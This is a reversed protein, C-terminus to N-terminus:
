AAGDEARAIRAADDKIEYARVPWGDAYHEPLAEIAQAIREREEARARDILEQVAPDPHDLHKRATM